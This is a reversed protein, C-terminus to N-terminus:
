VYDNGVKVFNVMPKANIRGLFNSEPLLVVSAGTQHNTLFVAMWPENKGITYTGAPLRTSGAIFAFPIQVSIRRTVGSAEVASACAVLILTLVFKSVLTKM